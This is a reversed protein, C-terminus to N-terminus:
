NEYYSFNKTDIRSGWFQDEMISEYRKFAEAEERLFIEPQDVMQKLKILNKEKIWTSRMWELYYGKANLFLEYDYNNEPLEFEFKYENGPMSILYLSPDNMKNLANMDEKGKNLIRKPKIVLPTVKQIINTLAVYDIRWLGRNLVLKLKVTPKSSNTHLPIFQKNIAIPGTENLTSQYVWEGNTENLLFIDIGGLMKSTADFRNRLHEHNELLAFIDSVEDGM